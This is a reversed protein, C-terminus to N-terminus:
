DDTEKMKRELREWESALQDVRGVLPNEERVIRRADAPTYNGILRGPLLNQLQRRILSAEEFLRGYRSM